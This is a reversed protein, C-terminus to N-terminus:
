KTEDCEITIYLHDRNLIFVDFLLPIWIITNYFWNRGRLEYVDTNLYCPIKRYWARVWPTEIKKTM